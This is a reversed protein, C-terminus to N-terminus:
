GKIKQLIQQHQKRDIPYFFLVGIALAYFLIAIPGFLLRITFLVPEPQAVNPVFRVMQLAIGIIFNALSQGMKSFFTWAGYYIGENRQGTAAYGYDVADPLISWPLVYGTAFGIGSFALVGFFFPIGLVHGWLFTLCLGVILIGMGLIYAWKKGIWAALKIWLPISLLTPVLLFLFAVTTLSENNYIYKFYYIMTGSLLTVAIMNLMYTFLIFLYPPNKVIVSFDKLSAKPVNQSAKKERIFFVTVFASLMTVMGLIIAMMSFGPSRDLMVQGDIVTKRSFADIIPFAAGAALFTGVIAFSMRYGNLSTREDYDDTLEPTLASYPVNTLTYATFLLCLIITTWWFLLTQNAIRPNTFMIVMFIFMLIAGIFIYPRRRGWKTRTHDSLFGVMPDTVADWVRGIMIATGALAPLLGLTDTFYNMLWFSALTFFLNGGIDCVGFALKTKVPLSHKKM